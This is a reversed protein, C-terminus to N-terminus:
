RVRYNLTLSAGARTITVTFVKADRLRDYLELVHDPTGLLHGNIATVTDGNHLGLAALLSDPRVAYLKFGDPKGDKVAPVIRAGRNAMPDAMVASALDAPVEYTTADIQKISAIPLAVPANVPAPDAVTITLTLPQDTRDADFVVTPRQAAATLAARAEDITTIPTGGIAHIVDGINLGRFTYGNAVSVGAPKGKRTIQTFVAAESTARALEDRTMHLAGHRLDLPVRVDVANGNRLVALYVVSSSRVDLRANNLSLASVGNVMVLLDGKALGFAPVDHSIILGVPEDLKAELVAFLDQLGDPDVPALPAAHAASSVLCAAVIWARNM